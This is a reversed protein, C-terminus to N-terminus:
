RQADLKKLENIKLSLRNIEHLIIKTKALIENNNLSEELYKEYDKLRLELADIEAKHIPPQM